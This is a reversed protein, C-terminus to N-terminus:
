AVVEESTDSFIEELETASMESTAAFDFESQWAAYLTIDKRIKTEFDFRDDDRKRDDIFWGTIPIIGDKQILECPDSVREGRRLIQYYSKKHPTIVYEVMVQRRRFLLFFLFPALALLAWWWPVATDPTGGLFGLPIEPNPIFFLGDDTTAYTGLYVGVPLHEQYLFQTIEGSSLADHLLNENITYLRSHVNDTPVLVMDDPVLPVLTSTGPPITWTINNDDIIGGPPVEIHIPPSTLWPPDVPTGPGPGFLDPPDITVEGGGGPINVPPPDIIMGGGNDPNYPPPEAIIGGGGLDPTSTPQVTGPYTPTPTVTAIPPIISGPPQVPPVAPTIPTVVLPATPSPTPETTIPPTTETPPETEIPPVVPTIPVVPPQQPPVVPTIPVVAIQTPQPPPETTYIPPEITEIPPNTIDPPEITPQTPPTTPQPTQHPTPQPRPPPPIYTPEPTPIPAPPVPTAPTIPQTPTPTSPPPSVEPPVILIPPHEFEEEDLLRFQFHVHLNYVPERTMEGTDPNRVDVFGGTATTPGELFGGINYQFDYTLLPHFNVSEGEGFTGSEFADGDANPGAWGLGGPIRWGGRGQGYSPNDRIHENRSFGNLTIIDLQYNETDMKPQIELMAAINTFPIGDLPREQGDQNLGPSLPIRRQPARFVGIGRGDNVTRDWLVRDVSDGATFEHYDRIVTGRATIRDPYNPNQRQFTSEDTTLPQIGNDLVWGLIVNPNAADHPHWTVTLNVHRYVVPVPDWMEMPISLSDIEMTPFELAPPEEQPQNPHVVIPNGDEDFDIEPTLTLLDDLNPLNPDIAGPSTTEETEYTYDQKYDEHEEDAFTIISVTTVLITFALFFATYRKHTKAVNFLKKPLSFFKAETQEITGHKPVYKKKGM